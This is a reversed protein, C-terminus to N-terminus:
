VSIQLNATSTETPLSYSEGQEQRLSDVLLQNGRALNLNRGELLQMGEWLRQLRGANEAELSFLLSPMTAPKSQKVESAEGVLAQQQDLTLLMKEVIQRRLVRRRELIEQSTLLRAALSELRKFDSRILLKRTELLLSHLAQLARFEKVLSDELQTIYEANPRM